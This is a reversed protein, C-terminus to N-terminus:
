RKGVYSLYLFSVLFLTVGTVPTGADPHYYIISIFFAYVPVSALRHRWTFDKILPESDENEVPINAVAPNAVPINGVAPSAM